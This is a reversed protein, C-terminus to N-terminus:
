VASTTSSQLRGRRLPAAEILPTTNRAKCPGPFSEERAKCKTLRGHDNLHIAGPAPGRPRGIGCRIRGVPDHPVAPEDVDQGPLDVRRVDLNGSRADPPDDARILAAPSLDQIGRPGEGNGAQHVRVEVGLRGEERQPAEGLGNQGAPGGREEDIGVFDGVDQAQSADLPHEPVRRSEGDPDEQDRGALHGRRRPQFGGAGLEFPQLHPLHGLPRTNDGEALEVPVPEQGAVGPLPLDELPHPRGPLDEGPVRGAHQPLVHLPEPFHADPVVMLARRELFDAVTQALPHRDKEAFARGLAADPLDQRFNQLLAEGGVPEAEARVVLMRVVQEGLSVDIMVDRSAM